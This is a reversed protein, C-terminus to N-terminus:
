DTNADLLDGFRIAALHTRSEAGTKGLETNQLDSKMTSHNEGRNSFTM